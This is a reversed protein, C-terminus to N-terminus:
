SRPQVYPSHDFMDRTECPFYISGFSSSSCSRGRVLNPACTNSIAQHRFGSVANCCDFSTHSFHGDKNDSEHHPNTLTALATAMNITGLDTLEYYVSLALIIRSVRLM